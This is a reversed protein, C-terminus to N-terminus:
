HTRDNIWIKKIIPDLQKLEFHIALRQIFSYYFGTAEHLFSRFSSTLKKSNSKSRGNSATRIKKRFDEIVKYYVYKWLNQEVEKSQALEYDLFIIKEYTDRLKSRLTAVQKDFISRSKTAQRLEVELEVSSKYLDLASQCDSSPM